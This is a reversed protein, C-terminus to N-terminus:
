RGAGTAPTVNRGCAPAPSGPSCENASDRRLLATTQSAAEDATSTSRALPTATERSLLRPWSVWTAEAGSGGNGGLRSAPAPAPEPGAGDGVAPPGPWRAGGRGSARGAGAGTGARRGGPGFGASGLGASRLATGRAAAPLGRRRRRALLRRLLRRKEADGDRRALALGAAHDPRTEVAAAGLGVQRDPRGRHDAVM